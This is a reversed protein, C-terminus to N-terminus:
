PKAADGPHCPKLAETAAAPFVQGAEDLVASSEDSKWLGATEHAQLQPIIRNGPHERGVGPQHIQRLSKGHRL